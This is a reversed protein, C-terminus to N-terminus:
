GILLYLPLPHYILLIFQLWLTLPHCDGRCEEVGNQIMSTREATGHLSFAQRYTKSWQPGRALSCMKHQISAGTCVGCIYVCVCSERWCGVAPPIPLSHLHATSSTPSTCCAWKLWDTNQTNGTSLKLLYIFLFDYFDASTQQVGEQDMRSHIRYM